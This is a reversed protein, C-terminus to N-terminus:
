SPFLDRLRIFAVATEAMRRVKRELVENLPLERTFADAMDHGDMCIVRKGRGFAQLGDESFGIYSVFLRRTWAAKQEIKGHFAHLDGVAVPANQWKAELLYTESGLQFSGDIQEGRLRFAERAQLGFTNFVKKVFSEFAYGREQNGLKGLALLESQLLSYKERDFAPKPPTGPAFATAEAKSRETEESKALTSHSALGAPLAPRGSAWPRSRWWPRFGRRAAVSAHGIAPRALLASAKACLRLPVHRIGADNCASWHWRRAFLARTVNRVDTRAKKLLAM